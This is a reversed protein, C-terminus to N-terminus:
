GNSLRIPYKGILFAAVARHGELPPNGRHLGYTDELWCVGRHTNLCIRQSEGYIDKISQEHFRGTWLHTEYISEAFFRDELRLMRTRDNFDRGILRENTHHSGKIYEHNGGTTDTLNVFLKLWKINDFDRQFSFAKDSLEKDSQSKGMPLPNSRLIYPPYFIPRQVGLFLKIANYLDINLIHKILSAFDLPAQFSRKCEEQPKSLLNTIQNLTAQSADKLANSSVLYYGNTFLSKAITSSVAQNGTTLIHSYQGSNRSHGATIGLSRRLKLYLEISTKTILESGFSKAHQDELWSLWNYSESESYAPPIKHM